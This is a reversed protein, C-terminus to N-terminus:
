SLVPAVSCGMICLWRLSIYCWLCAGRIPVLLGSVTLREAVHSHHSRDALLGRRRCRQTGATEGGWISWCSTAYCIATCLIAIYAGLVGCRWYLVPRYRDLFSRDRFLLLSLLRLSVNASVLVLISSISPFRTVRIWQRSGAFFLWKTYCIVELRPM